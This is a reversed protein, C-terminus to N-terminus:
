GVIQAKLPVQPCVVVFLRVLTGSAARLEPPVHEEHSMLFVAVRHRIFDYRLM